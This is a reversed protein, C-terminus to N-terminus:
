TDSEMFQATPIFINSQIFADKRETLGARRFGFVQMPQKRKWFDRRLFTRKDHSFQCMMTQLVFLGALALCTNEISGAMYGKPLKHKSDNYAKWWKPTKRYIGNEHPDDDEKRLRCGFDCSFPKIAKWKPRQKFMIGQVSIAGCHNLEKCQTAASKKSQELYEGHMIKVIGEVQSCTSQLIEYLRPSFTDPSNELPIIKVADMFSSELYHYHEEFGFLKDYLDAM